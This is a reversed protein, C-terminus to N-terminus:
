SMDPLVNQARRQYQPILARGWKLSSIMPGSRIRRHM